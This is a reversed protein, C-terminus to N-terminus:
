FFRGALLAGSGGLNYVNPGGDYAARLAADIFNSAALPQLM